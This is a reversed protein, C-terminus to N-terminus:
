QVDELERVCDTKETEHRLSVNPEKVNGHDLDGSREAAHRAYQISQTPCAQICRHCLYCEQKSDSRGAEGTPCVEECKGCEICTENRVLKFRSGFATLSLLAGYPCLFRCIPRYVMAGLALLGVFALAWYTSFDLHFFDAIGVYKLVGISFFAALAAFVGLFVIRFVMSASKARIKLKKVPILYALEQVAGIPCAYGCFTRGFVFALAAFAVLMAIVVGVPAMLQQTKGLLVTQLQVPLMPALILFGVLASVVLLVYGVRRNFKGKVLLVAVAVSLIVAYIMGVIKPVSELVM